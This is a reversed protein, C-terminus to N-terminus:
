PEGLFLFGGWYLPHDSGYRRRAVAKQRMAAARLAQCRNMKGSQIRRYFAVMLEQTERDPVSWLSM